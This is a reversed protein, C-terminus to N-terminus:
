SSLRHLSLVLVRNILFNYHLLLLIILRQKERMNNNDKEAHSIIGFEIVSLAVTILLM